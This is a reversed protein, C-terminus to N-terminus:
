SVSGDRGREQIRELLIKEEHKRARRVSILRIRGKRKVWIAVFIDDEIWGVTAKRIEGDKVHAIEEVDIHISDWIAVAEEFSVGHKDKNVLNKETDWELKM